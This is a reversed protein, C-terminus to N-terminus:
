EDVYLYITNKGKEYFVGFHDFIVPNAKRLYELDKNNLRLIVKLMALSYKQKRHKKLYNVIRIVATDIIVHYQLWLQAIHSLIEVKSNRYRLSTIHPIPVDEDMQIIRNLVKSDIGWAYVISRESNDPAKARGITQYYTQHANMEELQKSLDMIAVESFLGMEHYYSALWLYSGAPPYPACVTIMIRKDSAVGVTKDSRYYTVELKDSIKGETQMFKIYRYIRNSNPLVLMVNNVGHQKNISNIMEILSDLYSDKGGMFLRFPYVVKNDTIILQYHNTNRPDGIVYREFNVGLLQSMKILPMTADTVLVQKDKLMSFAGVFSRAYDIIPASIITCDIINEVTPINQVWWDESSLLILIKEIHKLHINHNEAFQTIVGYLASFNEAIFNQNSLSIPNNFKEIFAHETFKDVSEWVILKNSYEDNFETIIEVLKKVTDVHSEMQLVALENSLITTLNWEEDDDSVKYLQVADSSKQAFQSIEDLFVVDFINILQSIIERDESLSLARLKDYTIFLVDLDEINQLVSQYACIGESNRRDNREYEDIRSEIIPLPIGVNDLYPLEFINNLYKCAGDELSICSPKFHFSLKDFALGSEGWDVRENKKEKLDKKKFLLKLCARKNSAFVAGRVDMEYTKKILWFADSGTKEGIANTPIIILIKKGMRVGEKIISTTVGARTTKILEFNTNKKKLIKSIERNMPNFSKIQESIDIDKKEDKKRTIIFKNTKKKKKQSSLCYTRTCVSKEADGCAFFRNAQNQMVDCSAPLDPNTPNGYWYPVQQHLTHKNQPKNDEEDNVKFRIFTAIESPTYSGKVALYRMVNVRSFHRDVPNEPDRLYSRKICPPTINPEGIVMLEMEELMQLQIMNLEDHPEPVSLKYMFTASRVRRQKISTELNAGSELLEEFQFTPIKYETVILNHLLSNHITADIDWSGNDRIIIPVCHYITDYKYYPSYPVRFLRGGTGTIMRLDIKLRIEIHNFVIIRILEAGDYLHWGDCTIKPKKHNGTCPKFLGDKGNWVIPFFAEKPVAKEYKQIMYMGKGSIYVFFDLGNDQIWKEMFHTASRIKMQRIEDDTYYKKIAEESPIDVDVDIVFFTNDHGEITRFFPRAYQMARVDTFWKGIQESKGDKSAKRSANAYENANSLIDRSVDRIQEFKIPLSM